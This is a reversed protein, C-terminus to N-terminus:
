TAPNEFEEVRKRILTDLEQIATEELASVALEAGPYAIGMDAKNAVVMVPLEGRITALIHEQEPLNTGCTESPDVLFLLIDALHVVTAMAKREIDNREEPSRDLLGPSDVLQINEPGDLHGVRIGKTTFPYPAVEPTARSLCTLLQSKGVNPAGAIVVIPCTRDLVPLKRWFVRVQDLGALAPDIQRIVSALRGIIGRIPDQGTRRLKYGEKVIDRVREQGWKMTGLHKKVEGIGFEIDLTEHYFPDIRSLDPWSKYYRQLRDALTDRLSGLRDGIAQARERRGSNPMPLKDLRRHAVDLLEQGRLITPIKRVMYQATVAYPQLGRKRDGEVLINDVAENHLDDKVM